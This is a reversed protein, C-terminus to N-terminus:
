LATAALGAAVAEYAPEGDVGILDLDDVAAEGRGFRLDGMCALDDVGEGGIWAGARKPDVALHVVSRMKFGRL